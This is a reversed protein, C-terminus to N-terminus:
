PSRPLTVTTLYQSAIETGFRVAADALCELDGKHTRHNTIAARLVFAGRLLTSSPIAIGSEQIRLLLETNLADLTTADLRGPNFRFCVVNLPVPAMLELSPRTRICTELFRAQRVNQEVIRGYADTGHAQLALWVKLARFPRTLEPSLLSFDHSGSAVGRDLKTLYSAPPSFPRRHADRSRVLACGVGIPAHLWKHLDIAVSHAREIGHILPRLAPSLGTVAGFAGDVHLWLGFRDCIDAIATLDDFAGTNVTGATAIVAIPRTGAELDTTVARELAVVDMEFADNTPIRRVGNWGIGLLGAAKDVSNHVQESAYCALPTGLAHLGRRSVNEGARDDRAASLCVLNATSGGSVLVGSADNPWGVITKVWDLVRAEVHTAAHNGAWTNSNMAAAIMDAYAGITTGTGNVWGWARPHLNGYPHPMVHDRVLDYAGDAGLPLNPLPRAIADLAATTPANWAPTDAIGRHMAIVDDVIRYGLARMAEWEQPGPDLTEEPGSELAPRAGEATGM